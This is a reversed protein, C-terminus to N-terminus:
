ASVGRALRRLFAVFEDADWRASGVHRYAVAGDKGVVFTAPISLTAFAPPPEGDILVVPLEGMDRKHVFARVVDAPESTICALDVHDGAMRQRLRLLSPLEAVCPPCWTAWFNLVLVRGRAARFDHPEGALTRAALAYDWPEAPPPPPSLHQSIRKEGARRVYGMMAGVMVASALVGVMVGAAFESGVVFWAVGGLAVAFVLVVGVLYKRV